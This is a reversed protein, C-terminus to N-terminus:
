RQHLSRKCSWFHSWKQKSNFLLLHLFWWNYACIQWHWCHCFYSSRTKWILVVSAVMLWNELQFFDPLVCLDLPFNRFKTPVIIWPRLHKPTWFPLLLEGANNLNLCRFCNQLQFFKQGFLYPGVSCNWIQNPNHM